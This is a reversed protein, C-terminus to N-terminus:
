LELYTHPPDVVDAFDTAPDNRVHDRVDDIWGKIAVAKVDGDRVKDLVEAAYFAVAHHDAGPALKDAIFKAARNLCTAILRQRDEEVIAARLTELEAVEEATMDVLQGNRLKKM